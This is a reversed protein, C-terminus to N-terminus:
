GGPTAQDPRQSLPSGIIAWLREALLRHGENSLHLGDSTAGPAALVQVLWRRPILAVGHKRALARQVAGYRSGLPPLPLELMVVTRDASRARALVYDLDREFDAAPRGGVIDNGGIAVVVLGGTTPLEDAQKRAMQTTAGAVALNHVTVGHRKALHAPWVTENTGMGASLSDGIVYLPGENGDRVTPTFCYPLEFMLGLLCTLVLGVRAIIRFRTGRPREFGHSVFWCVFLLLGVGYFWAPKPTASVIILLAGILGLLRHTTRKWRRASAPLAAVIGVLAMGALYPVGSALWLAMRIAM